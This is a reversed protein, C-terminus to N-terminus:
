RVLGIVRLAVALNKSDRITDELQRLLYCWTIQQPEARSNLPQSQEARHRLRSNSFRQVLSVGTDSSAFGSM